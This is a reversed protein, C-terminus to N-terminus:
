NKGAEPQLHIDMQKEEGPALDLATGPAGDEGTYRWAKYGPASIELSVKASSPVLIRYDSRQGISVWEDPLEVRRLTFTTAVPRNTAADTVLGSVVGAKPGVKLSVDATPSNALLTVTTFMQNSYFAFTLDPYGASEKKAFVKYTGLELKNISFHGRKDTEAMRIPALRPLGNLPDISVQAAPVPAGTEDVVVGRVLGPPETAQSMCPIVFLLVLAIALHGIKM